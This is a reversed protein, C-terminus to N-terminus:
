PKFHEFHRDNGIDMTVMFTLIFKKIRNYHFKVAIIRAIHMWPQFNEFHGDHYDHISLIYIKNDSQLSVKCSHDKSHTSTCKPKVNIFHSCNGNYGYINFCIQIRDYHFKVPIIRPIHLYANLNLIEFYGNNGHYGHINLLYKKIQNYLFKVPVINPFHLLENHIQFNGLPTESASNTQYVKYDSSM